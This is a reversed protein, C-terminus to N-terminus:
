VGLKPCKYDEIQEPTGRLMRRPPGKDIVESITGAELARSIVKRAAAEGIALKVAVAELFSGSPLPEGAQSLIELLAMSEKVPDFTKRNNPTMSRVQSVEDPTADRWYIIDKSHAIYRKHTPEGDSDEWRLRKGRKGATLAFVGSQGEVPIITLQARVWNALEAGGAGAYASFADTGWDKRERSNPPKNTHHIFMVAAKSPKIIPDIKTRLFKTLEANNSIDCGAYSQLPNIIVLDIEPRAALQSQLNRCFEGGVLGNFEFMRVKNMAAQIKSKDYGDAVLGRRIENRFDALEEDDDEAQIIAVNLPKVPTIGFATEGMAWLISAQISFTSKGIGAPAILAMGGGKRLYGGSFVAAPNQTEPLPDKFDALVRGAEELSHPKEDEVLGECVAKAKALPDSGRTGEATIPTVVREPMVSSVYDDPCFGKTGFIAEFSNLPTVKSSSAEVPKSLGSFIEQLEINM